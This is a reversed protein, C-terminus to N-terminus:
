DEILAGSEAGVLVYQGEILLAYFAEDPMPWTLPKRIVVEAFPAAYGADRVVAVADALTLTQPLREYVTGAWPQSMLVPDTFEGDRFELTVTGTTPSQPDEAFIFGWQDVDDATNAAGSSPVGHVEILMADPYDAWVIGEAMRMLDLNNEPQEGCELPHARCYRDHLCLQGCGMWLPDDQNNLSELWEACGGVALLLVASSWCVFRRTHRMM